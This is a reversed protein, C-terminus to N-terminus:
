RRGSVSQPQTIMIVWTALKLLGATVCTGALGLVPLLVVAGLIGGLWGGLLDSAYLLGATRSVSPSHKLYLENALPFQSGTLLGCIFSIVLFLIASVFFAGQSSVYANLALFALPLGLAFCAIALEIRIFLKLDDQIRALITTILLAGCTAGAMFSAVLLGIWSFVYGYSAQFAFIVVLDLIMGAFGTVAISLSIGAPLFRTRSGLIFYLPLFLIFLLLIVGLSLRELQAFLWGFSPAFLANWYSISYFLGLPRFDRNIERSGGEIFRAFWDQWGGHLKNEIRWPVTVNAAINREDLRRVIQAKDIASVGPSDSSLFLNRDDGPIVRVHAFVSRLTHFICSNLRKLGESQFTLSGPAGLVLIGGDNLRNKVLAFFEQTFFRNAQLNSPEAIGVLILDYRDPRTKLLLRGDVHRVKVRGDNLEAETLPTPFKRLLALILPDLEAYDITAISPHKLAENIVGGAGGSLILLKAPEPHALLPLHVFEEVSGIDPVPTIIGPVGDEFFVYQGQNEIVCVNGYQSNQYHVVNLNKWQTQISGQHLKHAGGGFLLYGALFVLGSVMLLMTKQLPGTKWCPALLVLGAIFNLTAFGIAVEFANFSPIFLYTSAFGGIMAGATEYVYVWGAAATDQGSFIAYIRCCFTFLAGHLISVPLLILFSSYFIPLLGVSEGVSVGILSKLIRTLFVAIPLSISFLITILTFIELKNNSKDIIRGLFFSGFAELILWNALIMGISLENGSFVILLERLLCIEAVLGSMGMVVIAICVRRKM